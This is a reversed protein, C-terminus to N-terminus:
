GQDGSKVAAFAGSTIMGAINVALDFSASAEVAAAAAQGLTEGSVLHRLFVAGGPPLHRVVVELGPRTILGDEAGVAEIPGVPGEGRHAAFISVAPYDSRVIRVAPHPVLVVDPLREPAIAVLVEPRLIDLDAAHYADLWARDIRAVDALWPMTQAYQYGQIFDPFDRGYDFLLPSTPPSARLHFRAMARFFETGTLRETAPFNWALADILGVTVNNRYVNYRKVAAKNHPGTVAAPTERLPDLLGSAFAAAYSLSGGERPDCPDAVCM